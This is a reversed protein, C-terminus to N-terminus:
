CESICVLQIDRRTQAAAAAAAPITVNVRHTRSKQLMLLYVRTMLWPLRTLRDIAVAM